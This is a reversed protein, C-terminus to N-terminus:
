LDHQPVKILYCVFAVFRPSLLVHEDSLQVRTFFIM